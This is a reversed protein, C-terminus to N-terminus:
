AVHTQSLQSNGEGSSLQFNLFRKGYLMLFPTVGLSLVMPCMPWPITFNLSSAAGAGVLMDQNAAPRAWAEKPLSVPCHPRM